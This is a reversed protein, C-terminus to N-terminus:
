LTEMGEAERAHNVLQVATHCYTEWNGMCEEGKPNLLRFEVQDDMVEIQAKWGRPLNARLFQITEIFHTMTEREIKPIM